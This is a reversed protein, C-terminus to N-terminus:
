KRIRFLLMVGVLVAWFAPPVVYPPLYNAIFEGKDTLPLQLLGFDTIPYNYKDQFFWLTGAILYGNMVGVLLNFLFGRLGTAPKGPFSFTQGAYSGFVAAVFALTFGSAMIHQMTREAMPKDFIRQYISNILDPLRPMALFTILFLMVFIITTTGLEKPYKRVFAVLVFIVFVTLWLYEFPGM